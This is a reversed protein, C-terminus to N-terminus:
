TELSEDFAELCDADNLFPEDRPDPLSLFREEQVLDFIGSELIRDKDANILMHGFPSIRIARNPALEKLNLEPSWPAQEITDIGLTGLVSTVSKEPSAKIRALYRGTHPWAPDVGKPEM